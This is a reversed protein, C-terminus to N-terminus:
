LYINISRFHVFLIQRLLILEDKKVKYYKLHGLFHGFDIHCYRGSSAIEATTVSNPVMQLMGTRPSTAVCKYPEM